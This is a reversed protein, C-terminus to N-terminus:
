SADVEIVRWGHGVRELAEARAEEVSTARVTFTRSRPGSESLVRIRYRTLAAQAPAARQTDGMGRMWTALLQYYSEDARQIKVGLGGGAVSRLQHPVIRRWVVTARVPILGECGPASLELDVNEGRPTDANTQVFLGGHSVNLVIGSYRREGVSVACPM